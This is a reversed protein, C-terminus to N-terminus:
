LSSSSDSSSSSGTSSSSSSSSSDISSSSSSSSELVIPHVIPVVQTGTGGEVFISGNTAGAILQSDQFIVESVGKIEEGGETFRNLDTEEEWTRGNDQSRYIIHDSGAAIILSGKNILVAVDSILPLSRHAHASPYGNDLYSSIKLSQVENNRIQHIHTNSFNNRLVKIQPNRTQFYTRTLATSVEINTADVIQSINNIEFSMTDDQIRIKDGVLMGVTSEVEIETANRLANSTIKTGLVVFDDYIIGSTYGYNTADVEWNWNESVKTNDEETFNWFNVSKLNVTMTTATYSIVESEFRLNYNDVNTFIIKANYFLDGQLQVLPNDFNVAEKVVFTVFSTDYSPFSSIKGSVISGVVEVSHYHGSEVSTEKHDFGVLPEFLDGVLEFLDGQSFFLPNSVNSLVLSNKTNSYITIDGLSIAPSDLNQVSFGLGQLSNDKFVRDLSVMLTVRESADVLLVERGVRLKRDSLEASSQATSLPTLAETLDIYSSSNGAIDYSEYQADTATTVEGETTTTTTTEIEPTVVWLKGGKFEDNQVALEYDVYLRSQAGVITFRRGVYLPTLAADIEITVEGAVSLSDNDVITYEEFPSVDTVYFKKGILVNSRIVSDADVSLLANGTVSNIGRSKITGSIDIRQVTAGIGSSSVSGHPRSINVITDRDYYIGKDTGYMVTKRGTELLTNVKLPYVIFSARPNTLLIENAANGFITITDNGDRNENWVVKGQYLPERAASSEFISVSNQDLIGDYYIFNPPQTYTVKIVTNNESSLKSSLITGEVEDLEKFVFWFRGIDNSRLLYNTQLISSTGTAAALISGSTLPLFNRVAFNDIQVDAGYWVWLAEFNNYSINNDGGALLTNILAANAENIEENWREWWAGTTIQIDFKTDNPGTFLPAVILIKGNNQIARILYRGSKEEANAIQIYQNASLISYPRGYAATIVGKVDLPDSTNNVFSANHPPVEIVQDPNNVWRLALATSAYAMSGSTEKTWSNMNLTYYTGDSTAAILRDEGFILLDYVETQLSDVYFWNAELNDDLVAWFVGIDTAVFINGDFNGYGILIKNVSRAWKGIFNSDYIRQSYAESTVLDVFNGIYDPDVPDASYRFDYFIDNIFNANIDPYVFRMAQTLQLINSLYTDNFKFPRGDSFYSLGDEIQDHTFTGINSLISDYINVIMSTDGDLNPIKYVKAPLSIDKSVRSTLTLENSNIASITAYIEMNEISQVDQYFTESASNTTATSDILIRDGVVFGTSDEVDVTLDYISVQQTLASSVSFDILGQSPVAEFYYGYDTRKDENFKTSLVRRYNVYIDYPATASWSGETAFWKNFDVLATITDSTVLLDRFHFAGGASSYAYGFYKRADNEVLIPFPIGELQHVLEFTTGDSTKYVCNNCGVMMSSLDYSMNYSFVTQTLANNWELSNKKYLGDSKAVFFEGFAAFVEGCEGSPLTAYEVWTVGNNESKWVKKYNDVVYITVVLTHTHALTPHVEWGEVLHTHLTGSGISVSLTGYGESNVDFTHYHGSVVSSKDLSYDRVIQKFGGRIDFINSWDKGGNITKFVGAGSVCYIGDKEGELIDFINPNGGPLQTYGFITGENYDRSVMVGSNTAMWYDGNIGKFIKRTLGVSFPLQVLSWENNANIEVDRSRAVINSGVVFMVTYESQVEMSQSSSSESSSSDISSSSSSSNSDISSSSSSQSTSSSSSSSRQFSSSSSESDVSSSSSSDLSSSSSSSFSSSSDKSSSSSSDLSSSSSSSTSSTPAPIRVKKLDISWIPVDNFNREVVVFEQSQSSDESSAEEDVVAVITETELVQDIPKTETYKFNPLRFSSVKKLMIQDLGRDPVNQGILLVSDGDNVLSESAEEIQEGYLENTVILSKGTDKEYQAKADLLLQWLDSGHFYYEEGNVVFQYTSDSPIMIFGAATGVYLHGSEDEKISYVAKNDGILPSIVDHLHSSSTVSTDNIDNQWALLGDSGASAVVDNAVSHGHAILYEEGTQGTGYYVAEEGIMTQITGGSDNQDLALTHYHGLSVDTISPSVKYRIGDNSVLSYQLPLAGELLRGVHSIFPIRALDFEGALIKAAKIYFINETGLIGQVEVNGLIEIRVEDVSGAKDLTITINKAANPTFTFQDGVNNLLAQAAQSQEQLSPITAVVTDGVIFTFPDADRNGVEEFKSCFTNLFSLIMALMFRYVSPAKAEYFFTEGFADFSTSYTAYSVSVGGNFIIQKAIADVTVVSSTEDAFWEDNVYVVYPSDNTWTDAKASTTLITHTHDEVSDQSIEPSQVISSEIKHFHSNGSGLKDITIGSGTSDIQYTHKHGLSISTEDRELVNFVSINTSPEYGALATTRIDTELRIKPPDFTADGGHHHQVLFEKTFKEIHSHLYKLTVVSSTDIDTISGNRTVVKGILVKSSDEVPSLSVEFTVTTFHNDSNINWEYNYIVQLQANWADLVARYTLYDSYDSRNPPNGPRSPYDLLKPYPTADDSRRAFVYNDKNNFLTVRNESLTSNVTKVFANEIPGVPNFTTDYLRVIIVYESRETPTLPLEPVDDRDPMVEIERDWDVMDSRQKIEYPSEASYGDIIGTGPLIQVDLGSYEEITWGEIVGVGIIGIYSEMNYDMTVFRRYESGSYYYDGRKFLELTYNPTKFPM